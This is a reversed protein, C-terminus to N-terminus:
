GGFGYLTRGQRKLAYVVDMATVTKRRAHETYTVADRVVNELFVKLVGRTEEYILGSIRKVGGRRALRRIAPKTIGQINDRLVKRHRKAGGKGLGKGGKGRGSMAGRPPVCAVDVCLASGGHARARKRLQELEADVGSLPAPARRPERVLVESVPRGLAAAAAAPAAGAGRPAALAGRKLAALEDEVSGGELAAFQRELGDPTALLSASEAEAELAIVKEEMVDFAAWATSSNLRLGAVMEQVQKSSKASAARAKLTERKNRAEALRGELMRVNAQLTELAKRQADLQTKLSGAAADHTKRRLLAERALEDKGKSVALEARRLWEDATGQAAAHKAAMQRESAMVKATAQRMRILDENMEDTVRDLLLEPDEFQATFNSVYAKVIRVLRSFLNAEVVAPRRAARPPAARAPAAARRPAPAPAVHTLPKGHFASSAGPRATSRRAGAAPGVGRAHMALAMARHAPFSLCSALAPARASARTCARGARWTSSTRAASSTTPSASRWPRPYAIAPVARALTLDVARELGFVAQYRLNSSVGMFLGWVLATRFLPPVAVDGEREGHIQRKLLMLSNAAGQGIFGCVIGALSYELFKVGLCALRLGPTYVRVGKVSAELAASPVKALWRQLASQGAAAAAAGGIVARPAMLSVLVVDLVIGVLLDSLYFEFEAWFEDGRKRLEAVTACGSDIVVEAAVKFLFRDDALMRSRVWPFRSVLGGVFTLGQLSILKALATSRVGVTRATELVDAPLQVKAAAAAAEVQALGLVEEDDEGGGGGGSGGGGGGSGGSGSGGSGDGGGAAPEPLAAARWCRQRAAGRPAHQQPAPAARRPAAACGGSALPGQVGSRAPGASAAPRLAAAVDLFDGTQFSLQHLSKADDPSRRAGDGWVEGVVKMVNAGRRDPYVFAFSLRAGRGRADPRVEKVLDALERLTADPWTYVQLEDSPECGRKAYDELRHHAGRKAFVRLLLPCVKERDVSIPPPLAQQAVGGPPGGYGGGRGGGRGGYGGPGGGGYGGRGGRGGYGGYGGRHGGGPGGYGGGRVGTTASSSRGSDDPPGPGQPLAGGAVALGGGGRAPAAAPPTGHWGSHGRALSSAGRRLGADASFRPAGGAGLGVGAVFRQLSTAGQAGCDPEPAGCGGGASTLPPNASPVRYSSSPAAAAASGGSGLASTAGGAAPRAQQQQEGRWAPARAGPASAVAMAEAGAGQRGGGSDAGDGADDGDAGAETFDQEGAGLLAATEAPQPGAADMAAAGGCAADDAEGAAASASASASSGGTAAASSHAYYHNYQTQYQRYQQCAAEWHAQAAAEGPGGGGQQQQQQQQRPPPAGAPPAHAHARPAARPSGGAAVASASPQAAAGSSCGGRLPAAAAEPDWSAEAEAPGGAAPGGAAANSCCVAAGPRAPAATAAEQDAPGGPVCAASRLYTAELLIYQLLYNKVMLWMPLQGPGVECWEECPLGAGAGAGDGDGDGDCRRVLFLLQDRARSHRWDVIFDRRWPKFAHPQPRFLAGADAGPKQICQSQCFARLQNLKPLLFRQLESWQQAHAINYLIQWSVTSASGDAASLRLLWEIDEARQNFRWDRVGTVRVDAPSAGPGYLAPQSSDDQEAGRAELEQM